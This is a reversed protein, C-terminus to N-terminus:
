EEGELAESSKQYNRTIFYSSHIEEGTKEYGVEDRIEDGNFAGSSILKDISQAVDFIDRYRVNRVEIREGSLYKNESIFQMNLEDQIIAIIPNICFQMYNRTAGEVDSVDGKILTPPIGVAQGVLVLYSTTLKEIEETSQGYGSDKSHEKYTFGKQQPIIAITKNRIAEYAKDIFTQLPHVGKEDKRFTGEVDVTARIQNRKLQSEFMRRLLAGYDYFLGDIINSLKNNGYELYIVKDRHFTREFEYEKVFVNKFTMPKVAYEQKVYDTAVLLDKTDSQVILCEGEYILKEIVDEWFAAASQNINPKVNLRYYMSDKIYEGNSKVRFESQVITRAIMGIVANIALTKIAVDKSNEDTFLDIDNWINEIEDNQRKFM